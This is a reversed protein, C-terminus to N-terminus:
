AVGCQHCPSWRREVWIESIRFSQNENKVKLAINRNVCKVFEALHKSRLKFVRPMNGTQPKSFVEAGSYPIPLGKKGALFTSEGSNDESRATRQWGPTAPRTRGFFRPSRAYIFHTRFLLVVQGHLGDVQVGSDQTVGCM